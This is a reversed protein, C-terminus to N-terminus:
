EKRVCRISMPGDNKDYNHFTGNSFDIVRAPYTWQESSSWYFGSPWPGTETFNGIAARNNYLVALEDQAPLYWDTHGHAVLEHCYLAAEYPHAGDTLGVLFATNASGTWCSAVNGPPATTCDAMATDIPTVTGNNWTYTGPADNPTTFMPVDGDPSQGAYITGDACGIGIRPPPVKDCPDGVLGVAQWNGGLTCIQHTQYDSNFIVTGAPRTEPALITTGNPAIDCAAFAPATVATFIAMGIIISVLGKM